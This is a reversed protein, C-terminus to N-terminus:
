IIRHLSCASVLSLYFDSAFIPSIITQRYRNKKEDCYRFHICVDAHWNHWIVAMFQSSTSFYCCNDTDLHLFQSKEIQIDDCCLRFAISLETSQIFWQFQVDFKIIRHNHIETSKVIPKSVPYVKDSTHNKTVANKTGARGHSNVRELHKQVANTVSKPLYKHIENLKSHLKWVFKM